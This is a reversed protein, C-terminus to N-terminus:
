SLLAVDDDSEQQKKKGPQGHQQLAAAMALEEEKWRLFDVIAAHLPRSAEGRDQRGGLIAHRILVFTASKERGVDEMAVGLFRMLLVDPHVSTNNNNNNTHHVVDQVGELVTSIRRNRRLWPELRDHNITDNESNRHSDQHLSMSKLTTNVQLMDIMMTTILASHKAESAGCHGLWLLRLSKNKKLKECLGQIQEQDDLMGHNRFLYLELLQSCQEVLRSVDALGNSSIRNSDADIRRMNNKANGGLIADVIRKLGASGFSGLRFSLDTAIDALLPFWAADLGGDKEQLRVHLFVHQLGNETANMFCDKLIDVCGDSQFSCYRFTASTIALPHRSMLDHVFQAELRTLEVWNFVLEQGEATPDIKYVFADTTPDIKDVFAHYLKYPVPVGGPVPRAQNVNM